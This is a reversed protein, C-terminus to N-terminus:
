EDGKYETHSISGGYNNVHAFLDMVDSQWKPDKSTVLAGRYQEGCGGHDSEFGVYQGFKIPRTWNKIAGCKACKQKKSIDIGTQKAWEGPDIDLYIKESM